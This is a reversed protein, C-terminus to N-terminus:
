QPEGESRSFFTGVHQQSSHVPRFFLFRYSQCLLQGTNQIRSWAGQSVSQKTEQM